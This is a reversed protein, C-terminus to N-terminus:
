SGGDDYLEKARRQVIDWFICNDIKTNLIKDIKEAELAHRSRENCCPAGPFGEDETNTYEWFDPKGAYRIDVIWLHDRAIHITIKSNVSFDAHLIKGNYTEGGGYKCSWRDSEGGDLMKHGNGVPENGEYMAETYNPFVSMLFEKM